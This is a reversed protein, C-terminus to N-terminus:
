GSYLNQGVVEGTVRRRQLDGTIIEIRQLRHRLATVDGAEADKFIDKLVGSLDGFLESYFRRALLVNTITKPFCQAERKGVNHLFNREPM